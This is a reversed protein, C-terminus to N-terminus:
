EIQNVYVMQQETDLHKSVEFRLELDELLSAPSDKIETKQERETESIIHKIRSFTIPQKNIVMNELIEGLNVTKMWLYSGMVDVDRPKLWYFM